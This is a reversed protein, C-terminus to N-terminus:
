ARGNFEYDMTKNAFFVDVGHGFLLKRTRSFGSSGSQKLFFL